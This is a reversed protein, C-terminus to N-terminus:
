HYESNCFSENWGEPRLSAKQERRPSAQCRGTGRQLRGARAEGVGSCRGRGSCYTEQSLALKGEKWTVTEWDANLPVYYEAPFVYSCHIGDVVRRFSTVVFYRQLKFISDSLKHLLFHFVATQLFLSAPMSIGSTETWQLQSCPLLLALQHKGMNRFLCEFWCLQQLNLLCRHCRYETRGM